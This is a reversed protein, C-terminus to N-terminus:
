SKFTIGKNPDIVVSMSNGRELISSFIGRGKCSDSRRSGSRRFRRRASRRTIPRRRNRRSRGRRRGKSRRGCASRKKSHLRGKRQKRRKSSRRGVGFNKSDRGAAAGHAKKKGKAGGRCKMEIHQQRCAQRYYKKKQEATMKCWCKAGEIAVKTVPWDCHHKRFVRLYNLFPNTTKRGGKHCRKRKKHRGEKSGHKSVHRHSKKSRRCGRAKRRAM